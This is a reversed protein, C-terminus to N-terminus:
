SRTQFGTTTFGDRRFLSLLCWFSAREKMRVSMFAGIEPSAPSGRAASWPLPSALGWRSLGPSPLDREKTGGADRRCFPFFSLLIPSMEENTRVKLCRNEGLSSASWPLPSALGGGFCGPVQCTGSRTEVPMAEAFPFSLCCFSARNKMRASKSANIQGLSSLFSSRGLSPPKGLGGDCCGPVQCTGNRTEVPM